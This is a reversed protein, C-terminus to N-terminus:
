KGIEIIGINVAIYADPQKHVTWHWEYIAYLKHIALQNFVNEHTKLPGGLSIEFHWMNAPDTM